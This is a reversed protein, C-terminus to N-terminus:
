LCARLPNQAVLRSALVNCLHQYFRGALGPKMTMLAELYYGEIVYVDIVESDAVISAPAAAGVRASLRERM